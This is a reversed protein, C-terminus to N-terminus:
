RLSQVATFHSFHDDILSHIRDMENRLAVAYHKSESEVQKFPKGVLQDIPFDDTQKGDEGMGLAMNINLLALYIHLHSLLDGRMKRTSPTGSAEATASSLKEAAEMLEKVSEEVLDLSKVGSFEVWGEISDLAMAIKHTANFDANLAELIGKLTGFAIVSNQLAAHRIQRQAAIWAVVAAGAAFVSAIINGAFGLWDAVKLPAESKIVPLTTSLLVSLIVFLALVGIAGMGKDFRM